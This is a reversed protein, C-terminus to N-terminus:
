TCGSLAAHLQGDQGFCASLGHHRHEPGPSKKPSPHRAPWGTRIPLAIAIVGLVHEHDALLSITFTSCLLMGQGVAEDRVHQGAVDADLLIQDILEEVRAFLPQRPRQQQQRTVALLLLRAVHDGFIECSVSDSITPVVRDRTLKKM